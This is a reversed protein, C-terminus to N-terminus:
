NWEGQLIFGAWYYPEAWRRDRRMAAQAAQLAAAPRMGKGLVAQYFFTMLETTAYDPVRWLSAMVRPAGAYMFGRTLGVLGEGRVEKGLATQCASLVVLDAGLKLEYVEATELFGNQPKGERDVMSLVLGSLEPRRSNLLGHTAFHVIRYDALERSTATKRSAAFDLAQLSNRAGALNVIARAEQRSARLRDFTLIGTERASRELNESILEVRESHEQRGVRPDTRDFVPDAFVAVLKPAQKRGSVERRLISLTSASPLHVVEHSEGLVGSQGPMTLAAFPIYQLAGATVVALRKKGLLGAAPGLLIRSLADVATRRGVANSHVSMESYAQRAMGEVAARKPLAFSEVSDPSVVWLFSREEGLAYELLLTGPDLLQQIEAVKLPQPQTLAAYHPSSARVEAEVEQYQQQLTRVAKEMSAAQEVGHPGALLRIQRQTKDDLSAHLSRERKLLDPDVGERIQARAETLLDLLGRARARESVELARATQRDSFNMLLEIWLDYRGGATSLYSTRLEVSAVSGRLSETLQVSEEIRALAKGFDGEDRYARAMHALTDSELMRDGVRRALALSEELRPLSEQPRKTELYTEAMLNDTFAQARLMQLSRQISLAQEFHQLARVRDGSLAYARGIHQLAVAEAGRHGTERLLSLAPILSDLAKRADRLKAYETGMNMLDIAVGRRNGIQRNLALAQSFYELAQESKGFRSYIVALDNLTSAETDRDGVTRCIELADLKLRLAPQLDGVEAYFTGLNKLTEAEGRRDGAGRRLPLAQQLKELAQEREGRDWHALGLNNLAEGERRRDGLSRWISLAQSEYESYRNADGISFYISGLQMLIYGESEPDNLERWLPLTSQFREIALDLSAKSGQVRLRRGEAFAREAAIRKEDAAQAARLAALTVGYKGAIPGGMKVQLRYDGEAAAVASIPLTREDGARKLAEAIKEGTPSLLSATLEVGNPQVEFRLYQGARAHVRYNHAEGASLTREIPKGPELDQATEPFGRQPGSLALVGLFLITWSFQGPKTVSTM